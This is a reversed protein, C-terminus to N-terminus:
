ETNPTNRIRFTISPFFVGPKSNDVDEDTQFEMTYAANDAGAAAAGRMLTEFAEAFGAASGGRIKAMAKRDLEAMMM